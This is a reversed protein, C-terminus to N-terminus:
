RRRRRVKITRLKDGVVLKQLFEPPLFFELKANLLFYGDNRDPNGRIDGGEAPALGIEPRRDALAAALPNAFTAPDKHVTSADDLYDTFTWRYGGDIVLNFFPSIRINLGIGYPIVLASRKYDVGETMLPQLAVWEGAEPLPQGNYEAPAQAKPNFYLYGIGAFIYPNFRPRQYFRAGEPILQAIGMLSLELNDSRFSLNRDVIPDYKSTADDGQLRFWITSFRVGFRPSFMYKLGLEINLKSDFKDKPNNVEGFYSSIGTGLSVMFSRDRQIQYFSQSHVTEVAIASLFIFLIGAKKM